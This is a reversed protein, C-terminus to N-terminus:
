WRCIPGPLIEEFRTQQAAQYEMQTLRDPDWGIAILEERLSEMEEECTVKGPLNLLDTMHDVVEWYEYKDKLM